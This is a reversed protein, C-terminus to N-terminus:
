RRCIPARGARERKLEIVVIKGDRDLALLDLRERTKDFKDYENTIILLDEGCLEPHDMVWREMDRREMVDHLHLSTKEVGLLAKRAKDYIFFRMGEKETSREM